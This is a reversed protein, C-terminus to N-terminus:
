VVERKEFKFDSGVLKMDFNTSKLNEPEKAVAAVDAIFAVTVGENDTVEHRVRKYLEAIVPMITSITKSLANEANIKKYFTWANQLCAPLYYMLIASDKIGTLCLEEYIVDKIFNDLSNCAKQVEEAETADSVRVLNCLKMVPFDTVKYICNTKKVFNNYASGADCIGKIYDSLTQLAYSFKQWYLENIIVTGDPVVHGAAGGIDFLVHIMYFNFAEDTIGLLHLLNAPLCESQIYQGMNFNTKLGELILDKYKQNLRDFTPSFEPYMRLGEYMIMDHDVSEFGITEEIKKVFDGVKGLDNIVLFARMADEDEYTQLASKVYERLENFSKLTIRGIKQCKSFAEYNGELVYNLLTISCWTRKYEKDITDVGEPTGNVSNAKLWELEPANVINNM